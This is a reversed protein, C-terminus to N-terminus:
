RCVRPLIAEQRPVQDWQLVQIVEAWSWNNLVSRPHIPAVSARLLPQGLWDGWM